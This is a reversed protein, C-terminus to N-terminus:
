QCALFRVLIDTWLKSVSEDDTKQKLLLTSLWNRLYTQRCDLYSESSEDAASLPIGMSLSLIHRSPLPPISEEEEETNDNGLKQRLTQCAVTVAQHLGRFDSFSKISLMRMSVDGQADVIQVHLVYKMQGDQVVRSDMSVSVLGALLSTQLLENMPRSLVLNRNGDALMPRQEVKGGAM